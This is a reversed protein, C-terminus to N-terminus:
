ASLDEQFLDQQIAVVRAATLDDPTFLSEALLRERDEVAQMLRTAAIAHHDADQEVGLFHFGSMLAAVGTSGSGAFPDLVTGGPPTVLRVLWTMLDQAKVTPHNNKCPVPAWRPDHELGGPNTRSKMRTPANRLGHDRERRDPKAVYRFTPFFRSAGGSDDHGMRVDQQGAFQGLRGRDKGPHDGVVVRSVSAGSQEDLIGVPCGPGCVIRCEPGHSLLLNAPYRGVDSPVYRGPERHGGSFGMAQPATWGMPPEGDVRCGDINIGGTRHRLVNRAISTEALPARLLWWDEVAPKVASGWGDWEAAEPSGAATIERVMIKNGNDAHMRGGRIDHDLRTGVVPRKAGLEKDIAKSVNLSKPYGTGFLHALRDRVEWGARDWAIGTWHSTRPIAWVLAHGGPKIVRLCERAVEAMWAIWQDRGGKDGDWEKGMFSIGAPPDTVIAEVSASPLERLVELCDAHHLTFTSM